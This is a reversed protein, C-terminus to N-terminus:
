PMVALIQKRKRQRAKALQEHPLLEEIAKRQPPNLKEFAIGARVWYPSDGYLDDVAIWVVKGNVPTGVGNIPNLLNMSLAEGIELINTSFISVGRLSLDCTLGHRLTDDSNFNGQPGPSEGLRAQYTITSKVTYREAQRIHSAGNM